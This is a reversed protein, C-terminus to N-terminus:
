TFSPNSTVIAIHIEIEGNPYYKEFDYSYARELTGAEEQEWIKKWTNFIGQEETTDVKFIDYSESKPIEIFPGANNNEVAVSLSYDGKYNSEYEYYVGYKICDKENLKNYAEKWMETIRQLIQQDHFNNTRISNIISLKLM